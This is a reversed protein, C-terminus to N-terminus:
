VGGLSGCFTVVPSGSTHASMRARLRSMGATQVLAVGAATITASGAAKAITLVNASQWASAILVELLITWTGTGVVEVGFASAEGVAVDLTSNTPATAPSAGDWAVSLTASYNAISM